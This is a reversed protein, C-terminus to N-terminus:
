KGFQRESARRSKVLKWLEILNNMIYVPYRM